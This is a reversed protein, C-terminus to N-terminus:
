QAVSTKYQISWSVFDGAAFAAAFPSGAQGMFVGVNNHPLGAVTNALVASSQVANANFWQNASADYISLVGCAYTMASPATQPLFPPLGISVYGNATGAGNARVSGKYWVYPGVRFGEVIQLNAAVAAGNQYLVPVFEEQSFYSIHSDLKRERSVLAQVAEDDRGERIAKIIQEWGYPNNVNAAM